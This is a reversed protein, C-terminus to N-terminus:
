ASTAADHLCSAIFEAESSLFDSIGTGRGVAQAVAEQVERPDGGADAFREIAQVVGEGAAAAALAQSV